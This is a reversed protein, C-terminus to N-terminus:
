GIAEEVRERFEFVNDGCNYIEVREGDSLVVWLRTEDRRSIFCGSGWARCLEDIWCCIRDNLDPTYYVFNVM